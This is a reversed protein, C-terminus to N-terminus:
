MIEWPNAYRLDALHKFDGTNRTLLTLNKSIASAAIIADPLKIRYRRCLDITCNVVDDSLSIVNSDAVFSQLTKMEDASANFRLVEIQSIVSINARRNVVDTVFDMGARPIEDNLYCIIVNSDM